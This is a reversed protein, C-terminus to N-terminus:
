TFPPVLLRGLDARRYVFGPKTSRVLVTIISTVTRTRRATVTTTKVRTVFRTVTQRPPCCGKNKKNAVSPSLVAASAPCARCLHRAERGFIRFGDDQQDRVTTEVEDETAPPKTPGIPGAVFELTVAAAQEVGRRGHRVARTQGSTVTRTTTIVTTISKKLTKLTIRTSIVTKPAKFACSTILLISLCLNPSSAAIRFGGM